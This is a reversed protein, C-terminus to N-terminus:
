TGRGAMARIARNMKEAQTSTDPARNMGAGANATPAKVPEGEPIPRGAARRIWKNMAVSLLKQMDGETLTEELFGLAAGNGRVAEHAAQHYVAALLGVYGDGGDDAPM